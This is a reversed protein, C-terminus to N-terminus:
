FTIFVILSPELPPSTFNSCFYIPIHCSPIHPGFVVSATLFHCFSCSDCDKDSLCVFVILMFKNLPKCLLCKFLVIIDTNSMNLEVNHSIMICQDFKLYEMLTDLAHFFASRNITDLPSDIEDIKIIKYISSANSLLAFSIIMAMICKQSTSMSSIDDNMVGSGLVPMRFEKDNIVFPQMVFEGGFFMSLLQNSIGLIKNMYMEAYVTQIGTTPSCCYKIVEIKEYEKSYREYKEVYDNYLVLKYKSEEIRNKIAPIQNTEIINLRAKADTFKSKLERYQEYSESFKSVKSNIDEYEKQLESMSNKKVLKLKYDEIFATCESVEKRYDIIESM